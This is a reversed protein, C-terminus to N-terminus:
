RADIMDSELFELRSNRELNVGPERGPQRPSEPTGGDGM